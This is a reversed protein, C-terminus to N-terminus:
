NTFSIRKRFKLMDYQFFSVVINGIPPVSYAIDSNFNNAHKFIRISERIKMSIDDSCKATVFTNNFITIIHGIEHQVEPVASKSFIRVTM